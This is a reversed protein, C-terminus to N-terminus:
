PVVIYLTDCDSAQAWKRVKGELNEWINQNFWSLQPSMNSYYFTEKNAELNFVRDESACLHGRDYGAYFFTQKASNLSQYEKPIIPDFAWANSRKVLKLNYEEYFKYAVWLSHRQATDYEMAYSLHQIVWNMDKVEPLEIRGPIYNIFLTDPQIEVIKIITDTLVASITTDIKNAPALILTKYPRCTIFATSCVLLVALISTNRNIKNNVM